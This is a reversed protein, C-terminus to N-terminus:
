APADKAEDALRIPGFHEPHKAMGESYFARFADMDQVLDGSLQVPPGFGGTKNSYDLYGPVVPVKAGSAIRYFGSKWFEARSRTAEPPITLIFEESNEFLEVMQAVLNNRRDRRVPVGGLWRMFAGPPGVFLTHKGMWKVPLGVSWALSVLHLLDWNSTHPAAILVCRRDHIVDSGLRWGTLLLVFKALAVKMSDEPTRPATLLTALFRVGGSDVRLSRPV